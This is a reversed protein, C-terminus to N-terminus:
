YAGRGTLVAPITRLLIQFDLSLSWNEIYYIDLLVMEDFPLESRGSVQWLGTMGPDAELRQLHWRDYEAVEAPLPPRPGVLSMEGRLVNLLQPMEDFSARRLWAGVRTRRPDNRIKFIPGSAENLERLAALEAEANIKMSRFKYSKFERGNRGVRTQAFLVPGSSDLKIAIAVAAWVPALLVLVLAAGVVDVVRKMLLNGGQITADKMGVLPLGRLDDVDTRGLSMEYMDPVIRFAVGATRCLEGVEPIRTHADSHLAIIVEDVESQQIVTPLDHMPGLCTFRGIDGRGADRVFGVLRYDLGPETTLVHMVPLGLAESGVVLVRRVGVDRRRLWARVFSQVIREACLLIIILGWAMMFLARSYALGHLMFVSALLLMMGISTGGLIATGQTALSTRARPRYLGAATYCVLLIVSLAVQVPVYDWLGLHNEEAVEGGLQLGYRFGYAILIAANILVLDLAVTVWRLTRQFRQYRARRRGYLSEWTPVAAVNTQM